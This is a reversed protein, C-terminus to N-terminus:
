KAELEIGLTIEECHWKTRLAVLIVINQSSICSELNKGVLNETWLTTCGGQHM